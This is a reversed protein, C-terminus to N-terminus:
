PKIKISIYLVSGWMWLHDISGPKGFFVEYPTKWGLVHSPLHNRLYNATTIAEGWLRVDVGDEDLMLTRTSELLTRNLQEAIGNQEPTFDNTLHTKIESLRLHSKFPGLYEKGNDVRLFCISKGTLKEFHKKFHEFHDFLEHSSKTKCLFM